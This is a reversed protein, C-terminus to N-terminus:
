NITVLAKRSLITHDGIIQRRLLRTVLHAEVVHASLVTQLLSYSVALATSRERLM